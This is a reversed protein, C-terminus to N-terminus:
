LQQAGAAILFDATEDLAVPDVLRVECDPRPVWIVMGYRARTLLVRYRNIAFTPDSDNTWRGGRLRRAHWAARSRDWNFDSGWCLGIWDLELGQCKFESAAVELAYSSQIDESPEVFWKPWDIGGQFVGNMEIGFARLRRAQASAVLGIRRDVSARDNLYSRMDDLSRTLYIPYEKANPRVASASESDGSVVAHAWDALRQARPARVGVDLHLASLTPVSTGVESALHPSTVVVWEPRSELAEIWPKIGAEGSNIEQGSGVLAIVVSWGEARSMIDLTVGAESDHIGQKNAMRQRDWARQAEDFVIVNEPPTANTGALEQVFGHVMQVFVSTSRHAEQLSSGGRAVLDKALAYQLVDVLPGNGSLYVGLAKASSQTGPEHVASLGALTKGSGPVGTVLCLLRQGRDRAERILERIADVTKGLNDAGSHSIERVDHGAYVERATELINPTPFYRSQEWAVADVGHPDPHREDLEILLQGLTASNSRRVPERGSCDESKAETSCLIPIVILDRSAEHFDRLDRAYDDAQLEDARLFTTAGVKMEIVIVAGGTLLVIDPRTRRRPITYEFFVTWGELSRHEGVERLANGLVRISAEWAELQQTESQFGHRSAELTLAGLIEDIPTDFFHEVDAAVGTVEPVSCAFWAGGRPVGLAGNALSSEPM